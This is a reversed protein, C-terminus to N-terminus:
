GADAAHEVVAEVSENGNSITYLGVQMHDPRLNEGLGRFRM